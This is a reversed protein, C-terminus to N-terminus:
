LRTGNMRYRTHMRNEREIRADVEEDFNFSHQEGETACIEDCFPQGSVWVPEVGRKILNNCSPNHCRKPM